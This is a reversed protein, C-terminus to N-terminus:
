PRLPVRRPTVKRYAIRWGAVERRVIDEYVVSGVSGNSTVGIGKSTARVTGDPGETVYVNTVHHGVPNGDGLALAAEKIAAGGHLEGAGFATLDYVVDVTFLEDMRDLEGADMLHGHLAVLEHIALKDEASLAM